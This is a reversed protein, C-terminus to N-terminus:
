TPPSMIYMGVASANAWVGGGMCTSLEGYAGSAARMAVSRMIASRFCTLAGAAPDAPSRAHRASGVGNDDTPTDHAGARGIEEGTDSESLHGQKFFMQECGARGSMGGGIHPLMIGIFHGYSQSLARDFHELLEVRVQSIWASKLLDTVHDHRSLLVPGRNLVNHPKLLAQAHVGGDDADIVNALERRIRIERVNNAATKLFLATIGIRAGRHVRQRLAGLLEASDHLLQACHPVDAPASIADGSHYRIMAFDGRRDDYFAAPGHAPM